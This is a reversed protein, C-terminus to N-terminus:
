PEGDSEDGAQHDAPQPESQPVASLDAIVPGDPSNWTLTQPCTALFLDALRDQAEKADGREFYIAALAAYIPELRANRTRLAAAEARTRALDARTAILDDLLRRIDRLAQLTQSYYRTALLDRIEGIEAESLRPTVAAPQHQDTM